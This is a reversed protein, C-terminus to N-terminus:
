TTPIKQQSLPSEASMSVRRSDNLGIPVGAHDIENVQCAQKHFHQIIERQEIALARLSDATEPFLDCLHNFIHSDVCMFKTVKDDDLEASECNALGSIAM